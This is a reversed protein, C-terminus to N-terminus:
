SVVHEDMSTWRIVIEGGMAKIVDEVNSFVRNKPDTMTKGIRTTLAKPNGGPGALEKAIAYKSIGLKQLREQLIEHM